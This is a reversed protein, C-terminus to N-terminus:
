GFLQRQDHLAADLRQIARQVDRSQTAVELPLDRGQQSIEMIRFRLDHMTHKLRMQRIELAKLIIEREPKLTPQVRREYQKVLHDSDAGFRHNVRTSMDEGESLLLSDMQAMLAPDLEDRLFDVLDSQAQKLGFLFMQMLARYDGRTFDGVGFDALPGTLLGTDNDALERLRRNVQYYVEPHLFLLRLCRRELVNDPEAATPAPTAGTPRAKGPLEVPALDEMDQIAQYYADDDMDSDVPMPPPSAPLSPRPKPRPQDAPKQENAWRLLEQEGIRLKMALKQLNEQRQLNSESALLIPLIRRAVSEREQLSPDHDLGDTEMQIVFDAVPVASAVVQEWQAPNERILDDPDKAGPIQLVRMDISLRGAYDATLTERAVELSRRTANQGAEDADLALIIQKAYRPAILKLQTETMATGMQAVVNYFGAQHAQIVDMYGEVIVATESERIARKAVDLGFLIKSKDFVPTQPSNLYKPNDEPDLARAGFGVVRGREDRIPIMLRNRFRDYVNGKDNKVALGVEIIDSEDYGLQKLEDLMNRWGPPAFGIQYKEITEASFGRKQMAYALADHDPQNQPNQLHGTYSDAAVQLLGRLADEREFRQQEAPSHKRLEVGADKALAELAERFDWGNYKQAFSFLDGGEACAGYCRWYQKDPDVVFSPTKESHFPCCAKYTRGAKKLPVYRSIYNVIDLRAKIEDTDSM